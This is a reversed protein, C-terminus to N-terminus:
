GEQKKECLIFAQRGDCREITEMIDDENSPKDITAFFSEFPPQFHIKSSITNDLILSVAICKQKKFEISTRVKARADFQKDILEKLMLVARKKGTETHNM